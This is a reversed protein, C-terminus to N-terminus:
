LCPPPLRRSRHRWLNRVRHGAALGPSLPSLPPGNTGFASGVTKQLEAETMRGGDERDLANTQENFVSGTILPVHASIAPADPDFPHRPLV